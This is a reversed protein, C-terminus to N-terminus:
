GHSEFSYTAGFSFITAYMCEYEYPLAYIHVISSLTRVEEKPGKLFLDMLQNRHTFDYWSVKPHFHLRYSDFYHSFIPRDLSPWSLQGAMTVCMFHTKRRQLLVM